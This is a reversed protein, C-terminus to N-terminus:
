DLDFYEIKLIPLLVRKVNPESRQDGLLIEFRVYFVFSLSQGFTHRELFSMPLFQSIACLLGMGMFVWTIIDGLPCPTPPTSTLASLDHMKTNISGRHTNEKRTTSPPAHFVRFVRFMKLAAAKKRISIHIHCM